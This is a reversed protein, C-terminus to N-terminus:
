VPRAVRTSGSAAQLVDAFRARVLSADHASGAQARARGGLAERRDADGILENIREVLGDVGQRDLVDAWGDELAYGVTGASAPGYVLIPRGSAMADISKNALSYQIY